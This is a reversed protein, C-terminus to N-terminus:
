IALEIEEGNDNASMTLVDNLVDLREWLIFNLIEKAVPNTIETIAISLARCQDTLEDIELPTKDFLGEDTLSTINKM